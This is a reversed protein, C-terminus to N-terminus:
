YRGQLAVESALSGSPEYLVYLTYTVSSSFLHDTGSTIILFDGVNAYGNGALDVITCMVTIDGLLQLSFVQESYTGNNLQSSEPSWSATGNADNLMVRLDYWSIAWAAPIDDNISTVSIKWGNDHVAANMALVPRELYDFGFGVSLVSTRLPNVRISTAWDMIGDVDTNQSDDPFGYDIGIRHIGARVSFSKAYYTRESIYEVVKGEGDIYIAAHLRSDMDENSISVEVDSWPLAYALGAAGVAVTLLIIAIFMPRISQVLATALGTWRVPGPSEFGASPARPSRASPWSLFFAARRESLRLRWRVLMSGFVILICALGLYLGIGYYSSATDTYYPFYFQVHAAEERMAYLFAGAGFLQGLFGLPTLISVLSGALFLVVALMLLQDSYYLGVFEFMSFDYAYAVGSYATLWEFRFWVLAMSLVGLAGGIISLINLSFTGSDSTRRVTVFRDPIPVTRRIVMSAIGFVCAAIGLYLGIAYGSQSPMSITAFSVLGALQVISGVRTFFALVSGLLMGTAALGFVLADISPEDAVYHWLTAYEEYYYNSPDHVWPLGLSILGLIAALLCLADIRMADPWRGAFRRFLVLKKRERKREIKFAKPRPEEPPKPLAPTVEVATSQDQALVKDEKIEESAIGM